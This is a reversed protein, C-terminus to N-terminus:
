WQPRQLSFPLGPPVPVRAWPRFSDWGLLSVTRMDEPGQSILLLALDAGVMQSFPRDTVVM